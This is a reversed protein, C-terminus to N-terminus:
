FTRRRWCSRCFVCGTFRSRRTPILNLRCATAASSREPRFAGSLFLTGNSVHIRDEHLPLDPAYAELKLMELLGSARKALGCSFHPRLMEYIQKRISEEDTIRGDVTFFSGSVCVMPHAALLDECFLVENFHKDQIWRPTEIRDM